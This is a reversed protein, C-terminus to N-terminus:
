CRTPRSPSARSSWRVSCRGGASPRWACSRSAAGFAAVYALTRNAEDWADAPDVAWVISVATFAALLALLGLTGFGWPRRAQRGALLAAAGLLGAAVDVGIEVTTV